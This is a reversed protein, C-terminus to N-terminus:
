QPVAKGKSDDRLISGQLGNRELWSRMQGVITASPTHKEVIRLLRRVSMGADRLCLELKHNEAKLREARDKMEQLRECAAQVSLHGTFPKGCARCSPERIAALDPLPAPDAIM